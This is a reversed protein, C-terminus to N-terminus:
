QQLLVDSKREPFYVGWLVHPYVKSLEKQYRRVSGDLGSSVQGDMKMMHGKQSPSIPDGHM